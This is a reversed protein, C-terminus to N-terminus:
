AVKAYRGAIAKVVEPWKLALGYVFLVKPPKKILDYGLLTLIERDKTKHIRYMKPSSFVVGTTADRWYDTVRSEGFKKFRAALYVFGDHWRGTAPNTQSPDSYSFIAPCEPRIVRIFECAAKLFKSLKVGTERREQSQWLRTCELCGPLKIKFHSATPHSFVAIADREETAIIHAPLYETAGLYHGDGDRALLANAEAVTIEVLPM